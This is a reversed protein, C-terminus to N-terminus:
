LVYERLWDRLADLFGPALVRTGPTWIAHGAGPVVVIRHNTKRAAQFAHELRRVSEAVPVNDKEDEAGYAVFVPQSVQIWYPMPDYNGVKRLFEWIPLDPSAPYGEAIARAGTALVSDRARAYEGWDGSTIYRATATNLRIVEGVLSDPLGAGRATNAMELFSQEAFGVAAGSVNVLFAVDSSARAAALPAIWGGQSLGVLGVRASDIEARGQLFKLGALADEALETFGAVRWDGGSAGSGRKDTLLVAIGNRALAEAIDRSWVNARSSTGSGQIIVAGPVPMGARPILLEAALTIEGNKYVVSESRIPETQAGAVGAVLLAATCAAIVIRLMM